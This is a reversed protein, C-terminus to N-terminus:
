EFSIRERGCCDVITFAIEREDCISDSSFIELLEGDDCWRLECCTTWEPDEDDEFAINEISLDLEVDDDIKYTIIRTDLDNPKDGIGNWGSPNMKFLFDRAIERATM